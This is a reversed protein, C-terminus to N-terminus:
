HLPSQGDDETFDEIEDEDDDDAYDQSPRRGIKARSDMNRVNPPIGCATALIRWWRRFEPATWPLEDWESVIVAGSKPLPDYAGVSSGFKRELEEMVMPSQRLNAVFPEDQGPVAFRLVFNEDIDSWRLGRIWKMNGKSIDSDGPEGLPVWEGIVWTQKLGLDYQFAQALAISPREREHAKARLAIVQEATLQEKRRKPVKFRLTHLVTSLRLCEPDELITAGFSFLRRLMGIKSHAIAIKGGAKWADHWEVLTRANIESLRRSGYDRVIISIIADYNERSRFSLKPYQGNPDSKYLAVLGEVNLEPRTRSKLREVPPLEQTSDMNPLQPVGLQGQDGHRRVASKRLDIMDLWDHRMEELAEDIERVVQPLHLKAALEVYRANSDKKRAMALAIQM